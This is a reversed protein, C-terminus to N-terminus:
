LGMGWALAAIREWITSANPGVVKIIGAKSPPATLSVGVLVRDRHRSVLDFDNAV